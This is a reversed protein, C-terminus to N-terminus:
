LNKVDILKILWMFSFLINIISIPSPLNGWFSFFLRWIHFSFVTYETVDIFLVCIPIFLSVLFISATTILYFKYALGLSDWCSRMDNHQGGMGFM